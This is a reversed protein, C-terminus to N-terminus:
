KQDHPVTVIASAAAQNDIDTYTIIYTRGDGTGVREARLYINGVEDVYIDDITDSDSVTLDYNPYYTNIEDGENMTISTLEIEPDPYCDFVTITPTILVMKHNPPWLQDKDVSVAISTISFVKDSGDFVEGAIDSIRVLCEESLDCPVVWPYSGDNETSPAIEVWDTGNNLSYEINVYEDEAEYTWTIEYTSGALLEEGGNPSILIPIPVESFQAVLGWTDSSGTSSAVAYAFLRSIPDKESEADLQPIYPILRYDTHNRIDLLLNGANSDYRFPNSLDIIIDFDKPEAGTFNSSLTLQGSFVVTDDKGVNDDFTNSLRDPAKRTTSLNIQINNITSSFEEGHNVDPRFLIRSIFIPDPVSAFESSAFVQQYRMGGTSYPYFPFVNSVNGEITELSNPVVVSGANAIGMLLAVGTVLVFAVVWVTACLRMWRM